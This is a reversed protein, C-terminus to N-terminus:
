RSCTVLSKVTSKLVEIELPEDIPNCLGHALLDARLPHVEVREAGVLTAGVDM